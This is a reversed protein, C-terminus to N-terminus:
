VAAVVVAVAVSSSRSLDGRVCVYSYCVCLLSYQEAIETERERQGYGPAKAM